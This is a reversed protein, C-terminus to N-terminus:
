VKMTLPPIANLQANLANCLAEARVSQEEKRYRRNVPFEAVASPRIDSDSAEESTWDAVVISRVGLSNSFTFLKFERM